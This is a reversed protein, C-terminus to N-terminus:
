SYPTGLAGPGDSGTAPPTGRGRERDAQRSLVAIDQLDMDRKDALARRPAAARKLAILDDRDAIRVTAGGVTAELARARLEPWPPSGPLDATDTWVDLQGACTVLTFNAGVALDEARTPDVDLLHADVGRLRARLDGLAAALRRLNEPHSGAVVDVDVTTRVHGHGQVAVGGIAVYEVRHRAFATFVDGPRSPLGDPVLAADAPRRRRWPAM